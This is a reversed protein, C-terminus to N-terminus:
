RGQWDTGSKRQARQQFLALDGVSLLETPIYYRTGIETAVIMRGGATFEIFEYSMEDFDVLDFPGSGDEMFHHLDDGPEVLVAGADACELIDRFELCDAQSTELDKLLIDKVPSDPLRRVEDLSSFLKAM